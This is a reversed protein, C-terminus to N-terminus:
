CIINVDCRSNPSRVSFTVRLRAVPGVGHSPGDAQRRHFIRAAHGGGLRAVFATLRAVDADDQGTPSRCNADFLVVPADWVRGDLVRMYWVMADM